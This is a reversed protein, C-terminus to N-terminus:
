LSVVLKRGSNHPIRNLAEGIVGFGKGVNELKLPLKYKGEELLTALYEMATPEADLIQRADVVLAFVHNTVSFFTIRIVIPLASQRFTNIVWGTIFPIDREGVPVKFVRQYNWVRAHLFWRTYNPVM